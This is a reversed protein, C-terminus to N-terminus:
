NLKSKSVEVVPVISCSTSKVENYLKSYTDDMKQLAFQHTDDYSTSLWYCKSSVFYPFKENLFKYYGQYSITKSIHANLRDGYDLYGVVENSINPRVLVTDVVDSSVVPLIDKVELPRASSSWGSILSNLQSSYTNATSTAYSNYLDPLLTVSTDSIMNDKDIIYSKICNEGISSCKKNDKFNYLVINGLNYEPDSSSIKSSNNNGRVDYVAVESTNADGLYQEAKLTIQIRIASNTSTNNKNFEYVKNGWESDVDDSDSDLPWSVSVVFEGTGDHADVYTDSLSMNIHFPYDHSLKDELETGTETLTEDLIRASTIEYSLSAPSDGLNEIKITESVTQMGPSVNPLSIVVDNTVPKGSKSFKIQWAKVDIETATNVIGSYAFWALTISIFSVAAFFLSLLNLKLYRKHRKEM